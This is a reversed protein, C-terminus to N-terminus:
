WFGGEDNDPGFGDDFDPRRDDDFDDDRGSGFGFGPNFGLGSGFGLGTSPGPNFGSNLGTGFAPGFGGGFGRDSRGEGHQMGGHPRDRPTAFSDELNRIEMGCQSCRYVCIQGRSGYETGVYQLMGFCYTGDIDNHFTNMLEFM